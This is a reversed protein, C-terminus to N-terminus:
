DKGLYGNRHTLLTSKVKKITLNKELVLNPWDSLDLDEFYTLSKVAHFENRQGYKQSYFGVIQAFSFEKLLFYVDVFDKTRTGSGTIANVKFAAIDQKSLMKIGDLLIPENIYPYDHQLLDILIGDIFGKVTNRHSYQLLFGYQKELHEILTETEFTTKSFFDIDISKRHGIQLSLATGGVLCFTEFIPDSQLKRILDLTAATVTEKHLM